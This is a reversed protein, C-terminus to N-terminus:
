EKPTSEKHLRAFYQGNFVGNYYYALARALPELPAECDTELWQFILANSGGSAFTFSRLFVARLDPPMDRSMERFFRRNSEVLVSRASNGNLIYRYLARNKRVTTLYQRSIEQFDNVSLHTIDKKQSLIRLASNIYTRQTEFFEKVIKKQLDDIDTYYAYFTSRNVDAHACLETVTIRSLPKEQALAYLSERIVRKSYQARRDEKEPKM